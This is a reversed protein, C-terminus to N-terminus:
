CHKEMLVPKIDYFLLTDSNQNPYASTATKLYQMLIPQLTQIFAHFEERNAALKWVPLMPWDSPLKEPFAVDFPVAGSIGKLIATIIETFATIVAPSLEKYVERWNEDLFVNM